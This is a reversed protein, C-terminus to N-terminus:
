FRAKAESWRDRELSLYEQEMFEAKDILLDTISGRENRDFFPKFNVRVALSEAFEDMVAAPDQQFALVQENSALNAKFLEYLKGARIKQDLDWLSNAVALILNQKSSPGLTPEIMDAFDQKALSELTTMLSGLATPSSLEEITVAGDQNNDIALALDPSMAMLQDAPTEGGIWAPLIETGTLELFAAPIVSRM